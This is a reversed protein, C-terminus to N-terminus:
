RTGGLSRHRSLTYQSYAGSVKRVGGLDVFSKADPVVSQFVHNILRIKDIDVYISYGRLLKPMNRAFKSLNHIAGPNM